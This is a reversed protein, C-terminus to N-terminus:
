DSVCEEEVDYETEIPEGVSDVVLEREGVGRVADGDGVWARDFVGEGVDVNVSSRM